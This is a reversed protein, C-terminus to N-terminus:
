YYKPYLEIIGSVPFDETHKSLVVMSYQTIDSGGRVRNTHTMKILRPTNLQQSCYEM